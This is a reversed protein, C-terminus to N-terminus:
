KAEVIAKYRAVTAKPIQEVTALIAEVEEGSLPSIDLKLREADALFAPDRCTETFAQRL